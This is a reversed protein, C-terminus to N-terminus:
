QIQLFTFSGPRSGYSKTTIGNKTSGSYNAQGPTKWLTVEGGVNSKIGAHIAAICISSDDTYIDTGWVNGNAPCKDPCLVHAYSGKIGRATTTCSIMVIPKQTTVEATEPDSPNFFTFSGSWAGFNKTTIENRTSGFYDAQGPTKWVTVEGGNNPLLGAHIAARCISSDDTYVDTGLVEQKNAVCQAPCLVHASSGKIERATTTCTVVVIPKQTTVEATKPDSPNFFIFSRPWAGFNKTTIGNRTSGFYDAQGPTKWVTVEGSNNSLLGAHIAARCISSDDTYVDTGLVEQKNAVCEAPCLVHASSGKIERATTTCTVVVIPKQTTVEATKPDSPNFFKFSRPWVGFNKTTVGNRTSGFYDAEGPTKWITVEGGNNHLLGAHIAARCISSDDTYVDTGLVEQKNAVCQAPCLVHASSGKIERATTTCTVVVIPKQTTVEATKPDSPNFFTFSRPWAGFNKTTIGNRTSGFYDAQGPTKWVTVEGGNNPLLGAHIAARCISSDDTYADTGWVTEENAVCGAPCLVHATSGKIERARTTCTVVVRNRLGTVHGGENPVMREHRKARYISREETPSDTGGLPGGNAPSLINTSPGTIDLTTTTSSEMGLPKQTPKTTVTDTSNLFTFSGPWTGYNNSTVM